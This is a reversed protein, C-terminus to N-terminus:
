TGDMYWGSGVWQTGNVVLGRTHHDVQVPEVAAGGGAPNATLPPARMLRKVKTMNILLPPSAAGAGDTGVPIGTTRTGGRTIAITIHLDTNVTPPLSTLPFPFINSGNLVKLSTRGLEHHCRYSLSCEFPEATPDCM